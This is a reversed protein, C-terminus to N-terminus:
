HPLIQHSAAFVNQLAAIGFGDFPWKSVSKSAPLFLDDFNQPGNDRNM